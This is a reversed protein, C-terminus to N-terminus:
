KTKKELEHIESSYCGVFPSTWQELFEGHSDFDPKSLDVPDGYLFDTVVV